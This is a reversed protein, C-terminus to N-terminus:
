CDFWPFNKLIPLNQTMTQGVAPTDPSTEPVKKPPKELTNNKDKRSKKSFQGSGCSSLGFLKGGKCNATRSPKTETNDEDPSSVKEPPGNVHSHTPKSHCRRYKTHSNSFDKPKTKHKALSRKAPKCHFDKHQVTLIKRKSRNSYAAKRDAKLTTSNIGSATHRKSSKTQTQQGSTVPRILRGLRDELEELIDNVPGLYFRFTKTTLKEGMLQCRNLEISATEMECLASTAKEWCREVAFFVFTSM